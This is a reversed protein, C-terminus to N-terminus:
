LDLLGETIWFAHYWSVELYSISLYYFLIIPLETLQPYFNLNIYIVAIGCARNTSDKLIKIYQGQWPCWKQFAGSHINKTGGVRLVQM